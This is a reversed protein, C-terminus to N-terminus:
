RTINNCIDASLSVLVRDVGSLTGIELMPSARSGAFEDRSVLLETYLEILKPLLATTTVYLGPM